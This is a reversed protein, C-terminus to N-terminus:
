GRLERLEDLKARGASNIHGRADLYGFGQLFELTQGVAAGWPSAPLEGACERLIQIEYDTLERDGAM